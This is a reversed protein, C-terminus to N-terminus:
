HFWDGSTFHKRNLDLALTQYLLPPWHACHLCENRSLKVRLDIKFKQFKETSILSDHDNSLAANVSSSVYAGHFNRMSNTNALITANKAPRLVIEICLKCAVDTLSEAFEDYDWKSNNLLSLYVSQLLHNSATTGADM